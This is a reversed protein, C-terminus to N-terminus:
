RTPSWISKPTARSIPLPSGIYRTIVTSVSGVEAPAAVARNWNAESAEAEMAVLPVAVTYRSVLAKAMESIAAPVMNAAM